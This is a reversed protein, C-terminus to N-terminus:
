YFLIFAYRPHLYIAFIVHAHPFYAYFDYAFLVLRCVFCFSLLFHRVDSPLIRNLGVPNVTRVSSLHRRSTTSRLLDCLYAQGFLFFPCKFSGFRGFLWSFQRSLGCCRGSVECLFFDSFYLLFLLFINGLYNGSCSHIHLWYRLEILM